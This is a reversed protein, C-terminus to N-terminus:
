NQDFRNIYAKVERESLTVGFQKMVSQIEKIDLNGSKDQDVQRFLDEIDKEMEQTLVYSHESKQYLQDRDEDFMEIKFEM